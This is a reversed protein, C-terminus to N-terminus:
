SLAERYLKEYKEVTTKWNFKKNVYKFANKGLEIELEKDDLIKKTYKYLSDFDYPDVLFGTKGHDIIEPIGNVYTSIAEDLTILKSSRM